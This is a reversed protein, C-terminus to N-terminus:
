TTTAPVQAPFAMTTLLGRVPEPVPVPGTPGRHVLVADCLALCIEDEFLGCVQQISSTGIRGVGVAVQYSGPYRVERLYDIEVRAVVVPLPRREQPLAVHSAGLVARNMAVRAEEFLAAIAVNNVHGLSDMDGFRPQMTLVFPYNALRTRAPDLKAGM